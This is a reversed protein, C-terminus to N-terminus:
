GYVIKDMADVLISDREAMLVSDPIEIKPPMSHQLYQTRVWVPVNADFSKDYKIVFWLDDPIDAVTVDTPALIQVGSACMKIFKRRSLPNPETPNNVDFEKILGFTGNSFDLCYRFVIGYVKTSSDHGKFLDKIQTAFYEGRAVSNTSLNESRSVMGTFRKVPVNPGHLRWESSKSSESLSTRKSSSPLPANMKRQRAFSQSRATPKGKSVAKGSM